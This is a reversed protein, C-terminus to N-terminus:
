LKSAEIFVNDIQESTLGLSSGLMQVLPNDRRYVTAEELEILATEIGALQLKVAARTVGMTNLQLWLQRRTVESPIPAVFAPPNAVAEALVEDSVEPYVEAAGLEADEAAPLPALPTFRAVSGGSDVPNGDVDLWAFVVTGTEPFVSDIRAQPYATGILSIIRASM